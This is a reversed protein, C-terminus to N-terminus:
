LLSSTPSSQWLDYQNHREWRAPANHIEIRDALVAARVRASPPRYIGFRDNSRLNLAVNISDASALPLRTFIAPDLMRLGHLRAYPVGDSDTAAEMARVMIKWWEGSGPPYEPHAGIAVRPYDACLRVLRETSESSHWVPVGVTGHPWEALLADNDAESGGIVDPIIAWDFSPIRAAERVWEYYGAWGDSIKKDSNHATWAGCDVAFSQCVDIVTGLVRQYLWSVFAHRGVFFRASEDVPGGM